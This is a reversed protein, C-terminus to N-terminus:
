IRVFLLMYAFVHSLLPLITIGLSSSSSSSPSSSSLSLTCVCLCEADEYPIFFATYKVALIGFAYPSTTFYVRVDEIHFLFGENASCM